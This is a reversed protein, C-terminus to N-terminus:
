KRKTRKEIEMDILKDIREKEIKITEIIQNNEDYIPLNNKKIAEDVIKEVSLKKRKIPKPDTSTEVVEEVPKEDVTEESVKLQKRAM